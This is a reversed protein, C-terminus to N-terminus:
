TKLRVSASSSKAMRYPSEHSSAGSSYNPSSFPSPIRNIPM